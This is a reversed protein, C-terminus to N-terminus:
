PTSAAPWSRGIVGSLVDGTGATALRPSGSTVFFGQGDPAAVVTTSGKLLVIAGLRSALSRAARDPRRGPRGDGGETTRALREYEGDHPTLVAPVSRQALVKAARELPASRASGTPTSSSRFRQKPSSAACRPSSRRRAIRPRARGRAVPLPAAGAARRRRLRGGAGGAGGGRVGAVLGAACGARVLPGHRRRGAAGREVLFPGRRDHGGVRGRGRM